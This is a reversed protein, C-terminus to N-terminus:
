KVKPPTYVGADFFTDFIGLPTEARPIGTYVKIRFEVQGTEQNKQKVIIVDGEKFGGVDQTKLAAAFSNIVYDGADNVETKNYSFKATPKSVNKNAVAKGHNELTREAKDKIKVAEKMLQGDVFNDTPQATIAISGAAELSAIAQPGARGEIASLVGTTLDFKFGADTFAAHRANKVIDERSDLNFFKTAEKSPDKEMESKWYAIDEEAIKYEESDEGFKRLANLRSNVARVYGAKLSGLEKDEKEKEKEAFVSLNLRFPNKPDIETRSQFTESIIGNINSENRPDNHDDNILNSDLISSASFGNKNANQAFNAYQTVAASGGKMIWQAQADTYGLTKLFAANEKDEKRTKRREAADALRMRTAEEEALMDFKFQREEAEDIDRVIQKGMGSLFAGFNFAM